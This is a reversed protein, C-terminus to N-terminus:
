LHKWQQHLMEGKVFLSCQNPLEHAAYRHVEHLLEQWPQSRAKRMFLPFFHHCAHVFYDRPLLKELLHIGDRKPTNGVHKRANASSSFSDSLPFGTESYSEICGM